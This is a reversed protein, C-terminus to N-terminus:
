KEKVCKMSIRRDEERERGRERGRKRVREKLFCVMETSATMKWRFINRNYAEKGREGEGEENRERVEKWM